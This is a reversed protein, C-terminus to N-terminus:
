VELADLTVTKVTEATPPYAGLTQLIGFISTSGNGLTCNLGVNKMEVYLTDGMDIPTDIDIYGLYKARDGSPLNYAANDAIATPASSYLHLRFGSMGSPISAVDIRLGVRNIIISAGAVSAVNTFEINTAADTGVVDLATYPTTNNPRTKSVSSSKASSKIKLTKSNSDYVKELIETTRMQSM